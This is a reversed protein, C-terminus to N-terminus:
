TWAGPSLQYGHNGPLPQARVQASVYRAFWKRGGGSRGSCLAGFRAKEEQDLDDRFCLPRSLGAPVLTEGADGDRM